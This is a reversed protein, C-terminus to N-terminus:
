YGGAADKLSEVYRGTRSPLRLCSHRLRDLSRPQNETRINIHRGLTAGLCSRRTGTALANIQTELSRALLRPQNETRINIHRGLTAGLICRYGPYKPCPHGNVVEFYQTSPFGNQVVSTSVFLQHKQRRRRSWSAIDLALGIAFM